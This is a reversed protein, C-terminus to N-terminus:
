QSVLGKISSSIGMVDLSIISSALTLVETARDIVIQVKILKKYLLNTDATISEIKEISDEVDDMVLVAAQTYLETTHSLTESHLEKLRSNEQTTLTEFNEYRYNGLANAMKLFDDALRKAQESTLNEM